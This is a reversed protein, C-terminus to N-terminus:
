ELVSLYYENDPDSMADLRTLLFKRRGDSQYFVFLGRQAHLTGNVDVPAFAHIAQRTFLESDFVGLRSYCVIAFEPAKCWFADSEILTIENRAAYHDLWNITYSDTGLGPGSLGFRGVQLLDMNEPGDSEFAHGCQSYLRSGAENFWIDGCAGVYVMDFSASNVYVAAQDTIDWRGIEAPSILPDGVFLHNATQHFRLFTRGFVRDLPSSLQETGTAIDITHINARLEEDIDPIFHVRSQNDLAIDFVAASVGLLLPEEATAQGVQALNVISVFGDHGVAATLGDPSVSVAAPPRTLAVSEETGTAVDYVYLANDPYTAAMVIRDLSRSYEADRVDHPLTVRSQVTLASAEPDPPPGTEGTGPDTGTVTFSITIDLPSGDLPRTCAQDLCANVTVKDTYTGNYLTKAPRHNIVLPFRDTDPAGVQITMIAVQTYSGSIFVESTTANHLTLRLLSPVTVGARDTTFNADAPNFTISPSGPPESGGPGGSDGSGSGGCAGLVIGFAALWFFPQKRSICTFITM